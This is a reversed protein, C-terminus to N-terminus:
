RVIKLHNDKRYIKLVKSDDKDKVYSYAENEIKFTALISVYGM